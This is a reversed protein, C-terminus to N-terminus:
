DRIKLAKGLGIALPAAFFSLLAGMKAEDLVTGPPFAATTFFLAVTFGIGATVGMVILAPYTLGAARRLGLLEGVVTAATVGIPKGLVLAIAVAATVPGVSTFPVGANVLGFALLIAQVPVRWWEEFQQMTALRIAPRSGFRKLDFRDHPMLPVIPVLALAPHIGGFYLGLWSLLGPGLVYLWFNEAAFRRLLWAGLCASGVGGLLLPLQIEGQPYFAALVILGLVDDAIALLLLFPIAPHGRRFILRAVLYSFAIDTACPIAWGRMLEDARGLWSVFVAYIAAPAAMGGVAALVPMAAQGPEALPGGPLTAEYVEKAVLGFFFVMAVHNVLFHTRDTFGAYGSSDANAWLLGAVAGVLLLLSNDLLFQLVRAATDRRARM